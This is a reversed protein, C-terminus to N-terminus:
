GYLSCERTHWRRRIGMSHMGVSSMGTGQVIMKLVSCLCVFANLKLSVNVAASANSVPVRHM